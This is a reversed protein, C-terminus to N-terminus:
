QSLLLICFFLQFWFPIFILFFSFYRIPPIEVLASFSADEESPNPFGALLKM